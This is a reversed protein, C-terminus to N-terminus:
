HTHQGDSSWCGGGRGSSAKYKAGQANHNCNMKPNQRKRPTRFGSNGQRAERAPDTEKPIQGKRPACFGLKRRRAERAPDIEKPIHGKRPPLGSEESGMSGKSIKLIAKTKRTM